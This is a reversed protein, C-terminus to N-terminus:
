RCQGDRCDWGAGCGRPSPDSRPHGQRSARRSHSLQSLVEVLISARPNRLIGDGTFICNDALLSRWIVGNLPYHRHTPLFAVTIPSAVTCHIVGDDAASQEAPFATDAPIGHNPLISLGQACRSNVAAGTYIAFDGAIPRGRCHRQEARYWARCCSAPSSQVRLHGRKQASLM